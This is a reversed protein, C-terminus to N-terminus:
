KVSFNGFVFHSNGRLIIERKLFLVRDPLFVVPALDTSVQLLFAPKEVMLGHAPTKPAM